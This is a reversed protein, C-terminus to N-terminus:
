RLSCVVSLVPRVDSSHRRALDKYKNISAAASSADNGFGPFVFSALESLRGTDSKQVDSTGDDWLSLCFIDGVLRFHSAPRANAPFM